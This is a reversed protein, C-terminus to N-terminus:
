CQSRECLPSYICRVCKQPSIEVDTSVRLNFTHIKEILAEFKATESTEPIPIKYRKNDKLSHILLEKVTYGMELLCFYQAYLQYKYGDYITKVQYKREILQQKEQDFIDIKGILKYKESSINLAQIYRKTSSYQQSDIPSHVLTGRSQPTDQYVTKDFGDYITHLYLSYPCFIFDNLKSIQIYDHM